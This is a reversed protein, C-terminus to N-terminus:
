APIPAAIFDFVSELDPADIAREAWAEISGVDAAVIRRRLSDPVTGFRRQLLRLLIKAEGEARGEALGQEYYPQSFWGMIQEKREPVLRQLVEHMLKHHVSIPGKDFYTVIALLDTESLMPAEALVIDLRDPLDRRRGYKLAKLFARLRAEGSLAEDDMRAL